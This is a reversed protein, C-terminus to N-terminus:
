RSNPVWGARTTARPGKTTAGPGFASRTRPVARPGATSISSATATTTWVTRVSPPKASTPPPGARAPDGPPDPIRDGDLDPAADTLGDGDNDVGDDCAVTLDRESIDSLGSCGPDLLDTLGDGDNDVGDACDMFCLGPAVDLNWVRQSTLAGNQAPQVLPTPDHVTLTVQVPGPAQPTYDLWRENAGPISVGDVSWDVIVGGAPELLQASLQVGCLDAAVAGPPPAESGPEIPDIGSAPSGWGGAYLRRVYAESCVECFDSGFSRM